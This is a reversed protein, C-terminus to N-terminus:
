INHQLLFVTVSIQSQKEQQNVIVQSSEEFTYDHTVVSEGIEHSVVDTITTNMMYACFGVIFVFISVLALLDIRYKLKKKEKKKSM